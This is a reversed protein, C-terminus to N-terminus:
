TTEENICNFGRGWDGRMTTNQPLHCLTSAALEIYELLCDLECRMSLKNLNIRLINQCSAGNGLRKKRRATERERKTERCFTVFRQCKEFKIGMGGGWQEHVVLEDSKSM